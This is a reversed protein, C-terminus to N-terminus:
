AVSLTPGNQKRRYAMFGLGCFGLIMMAWTSAEPAASANLIGPSFDLTYLGIFNPDVIDFMPDVTATYSGSGGASGTEAFGQAALTVTYIENAQFQFTGNVVWSGSSQTDKSVLNGANGTITLRAFLDQALAVGTDSASGSASVAIPVNGAPGVVEFQYAVQASAVSVASAPGSISGSVGLTPVSLNITANASTSSVDSGSLAINQGTFPNTPNGLQISGNSYGYQLNGSYVPDNLLPAAKAQPANNIVALGAVLCISKINM